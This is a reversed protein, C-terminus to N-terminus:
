ITLKPFKRQEVPSLNAFAGLESASAKLNTKKRIKQITLVRSKKTLV